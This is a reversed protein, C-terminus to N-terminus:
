HQQFKIILTNVFNKYVSLIKKRICCNSKDSSFNFFKPELL